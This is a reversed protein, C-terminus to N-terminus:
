LTYRMGGGRYFRGWEDVDFQDQVVKLPQQIVSFSADAAEGTLAFFGTGAVIQFTALAAQGSLAFSGQAAAMLVDFVVAEGTLTFLGTAASLVFVQATTPEQAIALRGIADAGIM